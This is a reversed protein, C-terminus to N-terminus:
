GPARRNARRASGCPHPLAPRAGRGSRRRARPQARGLAARAACSRFAPCPHPHFTICPTSAGLREKRWRWRCVAQLQRVSREARWDGKEATGKNASSLDHSMSFSSLSPMVCMNNYKDCTPRHRDFRLLDASVHVAQQEESKVKNLLGRHHVTFLAGSPGYRDGFSTCSACTERKPM